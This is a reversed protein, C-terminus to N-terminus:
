AGPKGRARQSRRVSLSVGALGAALLLAAHPEPVAAVSQLQDIILARDSSQVSVTLRDLVIGQFGYFNNLATTASPVSFSEVVQGNLLAQFTATGPASVMAFAVQQQDQAFDLTFLGNQGFGSRFNGVRNGSIHPYATSLDANAFAHQFSVGAGAFQHEVPQNAALVVSEFDLTQEPQDLGHDNQIFVAHASGAGAWVALAAVSVFVNKM